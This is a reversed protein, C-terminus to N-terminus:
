AFAEEAFVGSFKARSSTRLYLELIGSRLTKFVFSTVLSSGPCMWLTSPIDQRRDMNQRKVIIPAFSIPNANYGESVIGVRIKCKHKGIEEKTNEIGRFRILVPSRMQVAKTSPTTPTSVAITMENRLRLEERRISPCPGFVPQVHKDIRTATQGSDGHCPILLYVIQLRVKIKIKGNNQQCHGTARQRRPPDPVVMGIRDSIQINM